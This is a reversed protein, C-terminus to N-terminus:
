RKPPALLGTAQRIYRQRNAFARNTDAAHSLDYPSGGEPVPFIREADKEAQSKRTENRVWGPEYPRPPEENRGPPRAPATVLKVKGTNETDM